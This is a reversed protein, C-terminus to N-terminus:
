PKIIAPLTTKLQRGHLLEAPSPTNSDHPTARLEQLAVQHNTGDEDCRNFLNKIIQVKREIFGHGKLYHPSSTTM